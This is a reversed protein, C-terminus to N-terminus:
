DIPFRERVWRKEEERGKVEGDLVARKLSRMIEGIIPGEKYGMEILDRGSLSPSISEGKEIFRRIADKVSMSSTRAMLYLPIEYPLNSFLDYITSLPIGENAKRELEGLILGEKKKVWLIIREEDKPPKFFDVLNKLEDWGLKETLAIIFLLYGKIKKGPQDLSFWSIVRDVERIIERTDDSLKYGFLSKIIGYKNLKEVSRAPNKESFLLKLEKYVRSGEVKRIFSRRVADRLLFDTTKGIRFGLKVSFRIARIIRTPDEIFSLNHLVRIVKDKIDRYGGFFDILEGFKDRTLSIALTNITFDRRYLDQALSSREVIPLEGPREYYEMRATAIDIRPGEPLWVSGTKFRSFTTIKYGKRRGIEKVLEEGDGEVVIDIDYNEIGLILDRVFGGVIYSKYNLEESVECIYRLFEFLYSPLRERLQVHFNRTKKSGRHEISLDYLNKYYSLLSTRTLAGVLKGDKDIVPVFRQGKPFAVEELREVDDDPRAVVFDREMFNECPLDGLKHYLCRDVIHRTIIGVVEGNKNVVPVANIGYKAMIDHVEKVTNKGEVFKVPSFMIDKIKGRGSIRETLISLLKMRVQVLPMGKLSCSAAVSHGGGGLRRCIDGVDVEPIKSRGVVFVRDKLQLLSFLVQLEFMEMVMQCLVAIDLVYSEWRAEAIGVEIGKINIRELSEVLENLIHLQELTIEKSLFPSIFNLDAGKELLYSAAKLDRPTTSTYTFKGTDEYIGLLLISAEEPSIDIGKKILEEVMLTTNAGVDDIIEVSGKIDDPSPPHHDYIIVEVKDAIESFPGIRDAQRTDVLILTEISSLDIESEKIFPFMYVISNLFFSKLSREQSSPYVLEADPHLKKAAIMSSLADFDANRHTVIVKPTARKM